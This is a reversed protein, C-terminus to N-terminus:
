GREETKGERGREGESRRRGKKGREGESKGEGGKEKGENPLNWVGSERM